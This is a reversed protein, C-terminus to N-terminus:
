PEFVPDPQPRCQKQACGISIKSCARPDGPPFPECPFETCLIPEMCNIMGGSITKLEKKSLKKGSKLILNKM